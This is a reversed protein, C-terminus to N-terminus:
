APPSPRNPRLHVVDGTAVAIRGDASEVVLRGADDIAVARGVVESEKLQVRVLRGLTACSQRYEEM